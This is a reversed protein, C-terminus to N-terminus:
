RRFMTALLLIGGVLLLPMMLGGGTPPVIVVPAEASPVPASIDRQLELPAIPATDSPLPPLPAPEPPMFNIAGEPVQGLVM